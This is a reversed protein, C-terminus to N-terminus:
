MWMFRHSTIVWGQGLKLPSTNWGCNFNPCPQTTVNWEYCRINMDWDGIFYNTSRCIYTVPLTVTCALGAPSCLVRDTHGWLKRLTWMSDCISKNVHAFEIWRTTSDCWEWNVYSDKGTCEEHQPLPSWRLFCRDCGDRYMVCIYQSTRKCAITSCQFVVRRPRLEM